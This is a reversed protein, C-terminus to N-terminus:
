DAYEALLADFASPPVRGPKSRFLSEVGYRALFVLYAYPYQECLDPAGLETLRELIPGTPEDLWRLRAKALGIGLLQEHRAAEIDIGVVGTEAVILNRRLSDVYELGVWVSEPELDVALKLLRRARDADLLGVEQLTEIHTRVRDKLDTERLDIRRPQQAYLAAFFRYVADLHEPDDAAFSKGSVFRVWLTHELRHILTPFLGSGHTSRLIDEVRRAESVSVFQVQKYRQQGFDLYSADNLNYREHGILRLGARHFRRWLPNARSRRGRKM